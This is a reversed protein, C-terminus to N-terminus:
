IISNEEQGTWRATSYQDCGSMGPLLRSPPFPCLCRRKGVGAQASGGPHWQTRPIMKMRNRHWLWLSLSRALSGILGCACECVTGVTASWKDEDGSASRSCSVTYNERLAELLSFFTCVPSSSSSPVTLLSSVKMRGLTPRLASLAM